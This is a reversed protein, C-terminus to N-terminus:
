LFTTLFLSMFWVSPLSLNHLNPLAFRVWRRLYFHFPLFIFNLYITETAQLFFCICTLGEEIKVNATQNKQEVLEDKSM